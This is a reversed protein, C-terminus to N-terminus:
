ARLPSQRDFICASDSAQFPRRREKMRTVCAGAPPMQRTGKRDIMCPMSMVETRLEEAIDLDYSQGIPTCAM